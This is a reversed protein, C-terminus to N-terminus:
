PLYLNPDQKYRGGNGNRINNVYEKCTKVVHLNDVGSANYHEIVYPRTGHMAIFCEIESANEQLCEVPVSNRCGLSPSALVNLGMLFCLVVLLVQLRM